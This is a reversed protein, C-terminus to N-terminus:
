FSSRRQQRAAGFLFLLCLVGIGVWIRWPMEAQGESEQAVEEMVQGKVPAQQPQGAAESSAEAQAIGFGAAMQEAFDRTVEAGIKTDQLADLEQWREALERRTEEEANWYGKRIAELLREMLQAQAAPNHEEFFETLKLGRSDMVYTDHIAQWQDARVTEPATVQWGWLNNVYNLMELTGAYGEKQMESIWHPNLPRTRMEAALFQAATTLKPEKERLDSIYLAPSKGDLHRVAMALGGLYEFPHDTSLVGHLNSSRSLIAADTGKLQEAFLNRGELSHGWESAGYAYQMRALFSEALTADEEWEASALTQDPLGTGYDGPENSFIRLAALRDAEEAGMGDAKLAAAIRLANERIINDEEELKSLREVAGALLRMFHDFQDRYVSTVQLVADVRPRGLEEAPIIDLAVVRGGEDWVPRLGMAHLVQAELVGLHRLAESSWLSFALKKPPHGNEKEFDAVLAAFAEAGAEYAAKTPIKDAEFAYLNRGSPVDPNRIPDGGSGPAVFGGALGGLLAEIEGTEELHRDLKQARAMMARLEEDEIESVPKGGRLYDELFTYAKTNSLQSFDEAFVENPDLGIKEYYEKGLQQMITSLRHGASAPSGFSHLGLPMSASALAHVHDHLATMFGPFDAAIGAEDWGIDQALHKELVFDTIRAATEERVAGEALQSYQHILDHLDRLEDYLGAPAFAPTQHSVTVARGRRKAQIAEAINDQIYPYFVPMDGLTLYPYDGAWLGRDKGPTWEQTGHTGFHILAHAGFSEQLYLYTALYAHGPPQKGDHYSAGVKGSRPPQPMLLLKGAALRPIIFHPEGDLTLLNPSEEPKGWSEEMDARLTGPLDAFWSQYASLPLAAALGAAHLDPLTEPRYFGGLMKQGAEILAEEKMATVDYGAAELAATLTELSQPVNLHSASFSKEGTPYNWFMLALRKESAPAKRLQALASAKDLFLEVQEPIPVPNGEEVAELVLPDSMGWTETVSFFTALMYAPVGSPSKQWEERTGMRYGLGQMVPIDLDLFDKSRQPGNQMHTLNLLMGAKAPVLVKTLGNPDRGDFWFVMPRLGRAEAGKVLVDVLATQMDALMGKHISIALSPTDANWRDKGWALYDGATAFVEPAEPHYIGTEPLILPRPITAVDGGESWTRIYAFLRRMNEEGGNAYYAMLARAHPPALREFAPPGGGILVYPSAEEGEQAGDLRELVGARDGPRPTDLLVLAANSMWGAPKGDTRDVNVTELTIGEERAFARLAAFKGPLVFDNTIIRVRLEAASAPAGAALVLAAALFFGLLRM